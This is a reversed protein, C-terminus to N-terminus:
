RSSWRPGTPTRTQSRRVPALDVAARLATLLVVDGGALPASHPCTRSLSNTSCIWRVSARTWPRLWRRARGCSCAARSSCAPLSRTTSMWRTSSSTRGRPPACVRLACVAVVHVLQTCWPLLGVRPGHGCARSADTAALGAPLCCPAPLPSPAPLTDLVYVVNIGLIRDVSGSPIFSLAKADDGHISLKGASIAAACEANAALEKRYVDSIEVSYVKAPSKTLIQRLAGGSGSGLELVTSGPQVDLLADVAAAHFKMEGKMINRAMWGMCGSSPSRMEDAFGM